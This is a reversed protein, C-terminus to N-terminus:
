STSIRSGQRQKKATKLELSEVYGTEEIIEKMLRSISMEQADTKFHEILAVFSELKSAGRGINPILDM